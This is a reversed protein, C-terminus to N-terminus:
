SLGEAWHSLLDFYFLNEPLIYSDYYLLITSMEFCHKTQVLKGDYMFHNNHLWFYGLWINIIHIAHRILYLFYKSTQLNGM